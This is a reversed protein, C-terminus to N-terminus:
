REHRVTDGRLRRGQGHRMQVRRRGERRGTTGDAGGTSRDAAQFVSYVFTLITVIYIYVRAYM